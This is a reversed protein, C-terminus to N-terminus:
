YAGKGTIVARPTALLIRLDLWLSRHRAYALDMRVMEDFTTRSRGMVQWLGTIGPKAELVRRWHWPRYSRLEYPIPPRPGVLSMDGRLVNWLQPLEDLSTRRLFRGVRTVRPDAKIKFPAEGTGKAAAGAAIFAEVFERHLAPDNNVHMTRFKLMTFPRALLGVRAQRFLVPGPSTFKVLAALVLLLPSCIALLLASGVIDLLRKAVLYATRQGNASRLADLLPDADALRPTDAVIPGQHVYVSVELADAAVPGLRRAVERRLMQESRRMREAGDGALDVAILGLRSRDDLWGLIDLDTRTRRLAALVAPATMDSVRVTLLAFAGSFRDARTRERILADRFLEAPLVLSRDLFRGAAAAAIIRRRAAAARHHVDPRPRRRKRRALRSRAEDSHADPSWATGTSTGSAFATIWAGAIADPM